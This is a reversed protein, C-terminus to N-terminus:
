LAARRAISINFPCELLKADCKWLASPIVLSLCLFLFSLVLAILALYESKKTLSCYLHIRRNGYYVEKGPRQTKIEVGGPQLYTEFRIQSVRFPM